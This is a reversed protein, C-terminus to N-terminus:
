IKIEPSGCLSISRFRRRRSCDQVFNLKKTAGKAVGLFQSESSFLSDKSAASGGRVDLSLGAGSCARTERLNPIQFTGTFRERHLYNLERRQNLTSCVRSSWCPTRRRRRITYVTIKSKTTYFGRDCTGRGFLDMSKARTMSRKSVRPV